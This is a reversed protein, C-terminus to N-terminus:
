AATRADQARRLWEAKSLLDRVDRWEVVLDVAKTMGPCPNCPICDAGHEIFRAHEQCPPGYTLPADGSCAPCGAKHQMWAELTPCPRCARCNERHHEQGRVLADVLVDLEAGDAATWWITRVKGSPDPFRLENM